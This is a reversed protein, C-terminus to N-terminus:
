CRRLKLPSGSLARGRPPSLATYEEFRLFARKKLRCGCPLFRQFTFFLLFVFGIVQWFDRSYPRHSLSYHFTFFGSRQHMRSKQHPPHSKFGCLIAVVPVQIWRTQWNRWRRTFILNNQVPQCRTYFFYRQNKCPSTVSVSSMALETYPPSLRSRVASRKFAM